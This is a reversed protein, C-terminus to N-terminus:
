SEKGSLQVKRPRGRRNKGWKDTLPEYAYVIPVNRQLSDIDGIIADPDTKYLGLLVNRVRPMIAITSFTEYETLTVGDATVPRLVMIRNEPKSSLFDHVQPNVTKHRVPAKKLEHCFQAIAAKQDFAQTTAATISTISM